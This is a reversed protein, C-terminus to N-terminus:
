PRGMKRPRVPIKPAPLSYPFPAFAPAGTQLAPAFLDVRKVVSTSRLNPSWDTGAPSYLM